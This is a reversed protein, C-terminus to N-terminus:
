EPIYIYIYTYVDYTTNGPKKCIEKGPVTKQKFWGTTNPKLPPHTEKPDKKVWWNNPPVQVM